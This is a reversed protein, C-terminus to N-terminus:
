FWIVASLIYFQRDLAEPRPNSERRRWWNNFFWGNETPKKEGSIGLIQATERSLRALVETGFDPQNGMLPGNETEIRQIGRSYERPLKSHKHPNQLLSNYVTLPYWRPIFKKSKQGRWRASNCRTADFCYIAAIFRHFRAM